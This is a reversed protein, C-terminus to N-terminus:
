RLVREDHWRRSAERAVAAGIASVPLVEVAAGLEAAARPMGFIVSTAEDQAITHWGAKRLALLGSAGDRGMGTLILAIGPDPWHALLSRFFVDVSPRFCADRPEEVYRLRRDAELILHDNTAALLVRGREPVDGPCIVEVRRNCRESM